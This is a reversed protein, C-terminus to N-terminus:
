AGAPSAPLLLDIDLPFARKWALNDTASTRVANANTAQPPPPESELRATDSPLELLVADDRPSAQHPSSPTVRPMWSPPPRLAQDSSDSFWTWCIDSFHGATSLSIMTLAPKSGCFATEPRCSM